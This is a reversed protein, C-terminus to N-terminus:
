RMIKLVESSPLGMEVLMSLLQHFGATQKINVREVELERERKRALEREHDRDAREKQWSENM